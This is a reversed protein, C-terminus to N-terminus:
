PKTEGAHRARFKDAFSQSDPPPAESKRKRIVAILRASANALRVAEEADIPKGEVLDAQLQESRLSMMAANRILTRGAESQAADGLESSFNEVLDRFRRAPASKGSVGKAHLWGNSVRSRHSPRRDVITSCDSM